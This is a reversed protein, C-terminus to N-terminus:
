RLIIYFILNKNIESGALSGYHKLLFMFIINMIIMAKKYEFFRNMRNCKDSFTSNYVMLNKVYIM